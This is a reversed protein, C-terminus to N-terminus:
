QAEAMSRATADSPARAPLPLEPTRACAECRGHRAHDAFEPAFAEVASLVMGAAGDPHACAGRRASLSALRQLRRAADAPANGASLEEVTSALADLGHVCPGCQRVSQGAMWRAVRATEAVPCAHESLLAVIGAGLRAGHAALHENSLRVESLLGGRVWAGGYGGLLAGRLRARAGGAAELLSCLSAGPEIEYVGQSAVAGSLTVLTSGSQTATGLERFWGAGHRAILALHALTEVNDLLTPRGRVGQEFPLPPTFTPKAPGGNLFNVLASEQGAVYHSPVRAVRVSAGAGTEPRELLAQEVAALAHPASACVCVIAERADVAEAAVAAGDLVLHPLAEVLTRDKLSAPEGEAANAVVIARGRASAVARMKVATPFAAGGRGLLGAREVEDRLGEARERRRRRRGGGADPLPGHVDLHQALTLAGDPPIGALLRPLRQEGRPRAPLPETPTLASVGTAVSM